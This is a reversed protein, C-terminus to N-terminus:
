VHARGIQAVHKDGTTLGVGAIQNHKLEGCVVIPRFEGRMSSIAGEKINKIQGDVYEQLNARISPLELLGWNKSELITDIFAINGPLEVEPKGKRVEEQQSIKFTRVYDEALSILDMQKQQLDQIATQVPISVDKALGM